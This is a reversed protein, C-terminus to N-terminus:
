EWKERLKKISAVNLIVSILLLASFPALLQTFGLGKLMVGRLIQVFYTAPVIRSILQFLWPMSEIPFLFGSLLATPLMTIIIAALFAIQLNPAITSILLGLSLGCFVYILMGLMILLLSGYLPVKFWFMATLIVILGSTFGILLYPIVKGIIIQAPKIPSVLIQEMTGNEQERVVAISTLICSLLLMIIAVLGPIFFNVSRLDPNYLFRVQLAFPARFSRNNEQNFQSILTTLYNNIMNAANPDSADLLVQVNVNGKDQLDHAYTNPIIIICKAKRAQFIGDVQGESVPSIDAKFFGSATIKQVLSRSQVTRSEDSIITKISRIDMTIAYGYLFLMFVPLFVAIFLSQPDRWIHVFEKKIIAFVLKNM